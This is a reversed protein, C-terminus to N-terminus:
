CSEHLGGNQRITVKNTTLKVKDKRGIVGIKFKRHKLAEEPILCTEGDDLTKPPFERGMPSHFTIVKAFGDWVPSFKFKAIVYGESGPVLNDFDCTPDQKIIQDEVIFKLIRM